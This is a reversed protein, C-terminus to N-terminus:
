GWETEGEDDDLTALKDLDNVTKVGWEAWESDEKREGKEKLGEKEKEKEEEEEQGDGEDNGDVDEDEFVLSEEMEGDIALGKVQNEDEDEDQDVNVGINEGDEDGNFLTTPQVPRQGLIIVQKKLSENEQQLLIMQKKYRTLEKRTEELEKVLQSQTAMYIENANVNGNDDDNKIPTSNADEWTVEEEDEADDDLAIGGGRMLVDLKFFYRSWFDEATIKTPVLAAYHRAVDPEEDLLEGVEVSCDALSFQRRFKVYELKFLEEVDTSYTMYSRRLDIIAKERLISVDHEHETGEEETGLANTIFGDTEKQVTEVFDMLDGKISEWM